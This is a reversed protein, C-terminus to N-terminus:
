LVCVCGRRRGAWRVTLDDNTNDDDLFMHFKQCSLFLFIHSQQCLYPLHPPTCIVRQGLAPSINAWRRLCHALM